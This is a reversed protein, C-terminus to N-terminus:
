FKIDLGIMKSALKVHKRAFNGLKKRAANEMIRRLSANKPQGHTKM